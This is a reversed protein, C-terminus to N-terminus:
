DVSLEELDITWEDGRAIEDEDLPPLVGNGDEGANVAAIEEQWWELLDKVEEETARIEMEEEDYHALGFNDEVDGFCDPEYGADWGGHWKQMTIRVVRKETRIVM